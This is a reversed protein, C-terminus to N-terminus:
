AVRARQRVLNPFELGTDGPFLGVLWDREEERGPAAAVVGLGMWFEFRLVFESPDSAGGEGEGDMGDIKQGWTASSGPVKLKLEVQM